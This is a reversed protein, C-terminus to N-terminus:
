EGGMIDSLFRLNPSESRSIAIKIISTLPVSLIMGVVGWVYGWILLSLLMVIPSLGLKQKYFIPEVYNGLINDLVTLIAAIIVAYGLSGFQVLAMIAPFAVGIVTGLVPIFASLFILVGWVVAYDVGFMWLLFAESVGKVLSLNFKVIVYKQIQSTIELFTRDLSIAMSQTEAQNEKEKEDIETKVGTTDKIERVAVHEQEAMKKYMYRKKIANYIDKQGSAIFILYFVILFSYELM